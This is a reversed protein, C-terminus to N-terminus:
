CTRWFMVMFLNQGYQNYRRFMIYKNDFIDLAEEKMSYNTASIHRSATGRRLKWSLNKMAFMSLGAHIRCINQSLIVFATDFKLKRTKGAM